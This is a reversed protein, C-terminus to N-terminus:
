KLKNFIDGFVGGFLSDFVDDTNLKCEIVEIRDFNKTKSKVIGNLKIKAHLDDMCNKVTAKMKKSTRDTLFMRFEIKYTKKGTM